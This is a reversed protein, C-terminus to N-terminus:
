GHTSPNNAAPSKVITEGYKEAVDVLPQYNAYDLQGSYSGNIKKSIDHLADYYSQLNKELAEIIKPVFVDRKSISDVNNNICAVAIHKLEGFYLDGTRAIISFDDLGASDTQAYNRLATTFDIYRKELERKHNMSNEYIRQKNQAREAKSFTFRSVIFGCVGGMLFIATARAGDYDKSLFFNVISFEESM